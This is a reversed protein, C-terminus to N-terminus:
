LDPIGTAGVDVVGGEALAWLVAAATVWAVLGIGAAGVWGVPYRWKIVGVWVLLVLLPGLGPIGAFLWGAVGWAIAAIGATWVAHEYSTENAIVNAGVYVGVGGVLLSIVATLVTDILAM